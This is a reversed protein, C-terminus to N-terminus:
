LLILNNKLTPIKPLQEEVKGGSIIFYQYTNIANPNKHWSVVNDFVNKVDRLYIESTEEPTQNDKSSIYESFMTKTYIEQTELADVKKESLKRYDFAKITHLYLMTVYNSFIHRDHTMGYLKSDGNNKCYIYEVNIQRGSSKAVSSLVSNIKPVYDQHFTNRSNGYADGCIILLQFPKSIKGCSM